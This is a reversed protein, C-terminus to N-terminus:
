CHLLDGDRRRCLRRAYGCYRNCIQDDRGARSCGIYTLRPRFRSERALWARYGDLSARFATKPAASRRRGARPGCAPRIPTAPLRMSLGSGDDRPCTHRMIKTSAASWWATTSSPGTTPTSGPGPQVFRSCAPPIDCPPGILMSAKHAEEQYAVTAGLEVCPDSYNFRQKTQSNVVIGDAIEELRCNRTTQADPLKLPAKFQDPRSKDCRVTPAPADHGFGDDFLSLPM